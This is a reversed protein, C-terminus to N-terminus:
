AKSPSRSRPTSTAGSRGDGLEGYENDGWCKVKGTSLRACSHWGGSAIATVGSLEKVGVPTTSCSFIGSCFGPGTSTGDGLDGLVNYGWCKVTGTSLRACAQWDGSAIAAVGTLGKVAVPVSSDTTTGDGLDGFSNDGWCKVTKTILLACTYNFGASVSIVGTLRKVAVPVSSDTTTGNGLEGEGNYGWCDVTKTSLLACTHNSGTSVAAATTTVSGAPSVSGVAASGILGATALGITM